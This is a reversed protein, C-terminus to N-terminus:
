EQTPAQWHGGVTWRKNPGYFCVQNPAHDGIEAPADLNSGLSAVEGRELPQASAAAIPIDGDTANSRALAAKGYKFPQVGVSAQPILLTTVHCGFAIVKIHELLRM